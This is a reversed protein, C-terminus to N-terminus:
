CCAQLRQYVIEAPMLNLLHALEPGHTEGTLAARLPMFLAKGKIGSRAKLADILAQYAAGHEAYAALAETFFATETADIVTRAAHNITLVQPNFIREAWNLADQPFHINPRVTEVFANRKAEPVRSQVARGMWNWLQNVDARAVAETQWHLLQTEDYRAPARGLREIAFNAALESFTMWVDREYTHGLRALYNNIADPLYGAEYLERLSRSGHRKSLPSGDHGVLMTIHGYEPAPLALAELLLLQRPTNTLHDEGRLVHTVGMVADDVANTFFFQPSGDARRIIFDGIDASRYRQPGRVLDNFVITREAPVRFRLTPNLGKAKRTRRETDNLRACTGPYRPPRGAALQSKRVLALETPTCFCPYVLEKHELIAYHRQYVDGRESQVYPGHEGGVAFGEQWQLGLRRLDDLLGQTYLTQSRERDTDEIRLLFVGGYKRALLANFLATRANGLHIYGTPSPAFRTKLPKHIM